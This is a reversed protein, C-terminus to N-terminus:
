KGRKNAKQMRACFKREAIVKTEETGRKPPNQFSPLGVPTTRRTSRLYGTTNRAISQLQMNDKVGGCFKRAGGFLKKNGGGIESSIGEPAEYSWPREM